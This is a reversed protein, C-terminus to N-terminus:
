TKTYCQDLGVYCNNEGNLCNVVQRFLGVCNTLAQVQTMAINKYVTGRLNQSDWYMQLSIHNELLYVQLIISRPPFALM